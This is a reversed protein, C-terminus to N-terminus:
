QTPFPSFTLLSILCIVHLDHHNTFCCLFFLYLMTAEKNIACLPHPLRNVIAKVKRKVVTQMHLFSCFHIVFLNFLMETVVEFYVSSELLM